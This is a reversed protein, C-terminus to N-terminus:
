GPESADIGLWAEADAIDRFVAVEFAPTPEVMSYMRALGFYLPESVVLATRASADRRTLMANTAHKMVSIQEASFDMQIARYDALCCLAAGEPLAAEFKGLNEIFDEPSADADAIERLTLTEPNFDFSIGM